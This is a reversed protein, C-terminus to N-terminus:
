QHAKETEVKDIKELDACEYLQILRAGYYTGKKEFNWPPYPLFVAKACQGPQVVMWQRDESSATAIEATKKDKIAVAFSFVKPNIEANKSQFSMVSLSLDVKQVGTVKGEVTRSFIVSYYSFLAWIALVGLTLFVVGLVINKIAKM